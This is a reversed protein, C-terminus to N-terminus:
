KTLFDYLNQMNINNLNIYYCRGEYMNDHFRIINFGYFTPNIEILLKEFPMENYEHSQNYILELWVGTKMAKRTENDISVGFAPMEYHGNLMTQIVPELEDLLLTQKEGNIISIAEDSSLLIEELNKMTVVGLNKNADFSALTVKTTVGAILILSLLLMILKKM